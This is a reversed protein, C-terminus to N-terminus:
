RISRISQHSYQSRIPRCRPVYSPISQEEARAKNSGRGEATAPLVGDRVGSQGSSIGQRQTRDMQYVIHPTWRLHAISSIGGAFAARMLRMAVDAFSRDGGLRHAVFLMEATMDNHATSGTTKPCSTYRFGNASEVWLEKVAQRVGNLITEARAASPGRAACAYVVTGLIFSDLRRRRKM